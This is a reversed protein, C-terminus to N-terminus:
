EQTITSKDSQISVKFRNTFLQQFESSHEVILISEHKLSLEEFLGFAKIKLDNDLGELAEDLQLVNFHIGIKNACLTMVAIGFCLRLIGRQGKSLQRYVAEHGNKELNVDLSDGDKLQFSVKLEGDFYKDIYRNTDSQIQDIAKRLLQVKLQDCLELLQDLNNQETKTLQLAIDIQEQTFVSETYQIQLSELQTTFPNSNDLSYNITQGKYPNLQSKLSNLQNNALKIELELKSRLNRNQPNKEAQCSDCFEPSPVQELRIKLSELSKSILLLNRDKELDFRNLSRLLQEEKQKRIEDEKLKNVEWNSSSERLQKITRFINNSKGLELNVSNILKEETKKNLRKTIAIQECLQMPLSLDALNEFLQKREKGKATFFGNTPSFENFLAAIRYEEATVGLITELLTQTEKLDKGRVTQSDHLIYLDNQNNKGRSRVVTFEGNPTELSLEGETKADLNNWSRIDDANGNKSTEAYLIWSIIDQLTSKGSGTPGYVLALGLDNFTFELEEYSGFNKIKATKVKM